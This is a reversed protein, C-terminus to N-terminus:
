AALMRRNVAGRLHEPAHHAYYKEVTALTDHLVGAIDYLPVGDQAAWTAWTHRLVHASVGKVGSRKVAACFVCDPLKPKDLYYGNVAEAVVRTLIPHLEAAIPVWGRRKGTIPRGPEQFNIMGYDGQALKEPDTQLLIRDLTLSCISERRAATYLAMVALRYARPLRAPDEKSGPPLTKAAALVRAAEDRTLWRDRPRASAPLDFTPVHAAKLLPAGNSDRFRRKRVCHRIATALAVLENRVSQPQAKRGGRKKGDALWSVEGRARAALYRDVDGQDLDAVAMDGFWARLYGCCKEQQLKDVAGTKDAIYADLCKAVTVGGATMDENDLALLFEAYVRQALRRDAQGTSKRKSRGNETWRVEYFGAENRDDSLYPGQNHRPM